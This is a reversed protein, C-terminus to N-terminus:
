VWPCLSKGLASADGSGSASARSRVSGPSGGRIGSSVRTARTWDPEFGELSHRIDNAETGFYAIMQTPDTQLRAVFEVANDLDDVTMLRLHM